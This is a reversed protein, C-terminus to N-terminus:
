GADIQNRFVMRAADFIRLRCITERKGGQFTTAISVHQSQTAGRNSKGNGQRWESMMKNVFSVKISLVFSPTV